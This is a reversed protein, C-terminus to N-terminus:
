AHSPLAHSVCSATRRTCACCVCTEEKMSYGEETYWVSRADSKLRLMQARLNHWMHCRSEVGFKCPGVITNEKINELLVKTHTKFLEIYPTDNGWMLKHRAAIQAEGMEVKQLQEGIRKWERPRWQSEMDHDMDRTGHETEHTKIGVGRSAHKFTYM